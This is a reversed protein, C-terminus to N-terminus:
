ANKSFISFNVGQEMVLAGKHYLGPLIRYKEM